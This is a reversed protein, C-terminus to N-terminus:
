IGFEKRANVVGGALMTEILARRLAKGFPFRPLLCCGQVLRAAPARDVNVKSNQLLALGNCANALLFDGSLIAIKNGFQMDKLPGDSSQLENLNVIGRHVLLATHILETIEALSRQSFCLILGTQTGLM